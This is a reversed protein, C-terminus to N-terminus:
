ERILADFYFTGDDRKVALAFYDCDNEGTTCTFYIRYTNETELVKTVIIDAGGSVPGAIPIYVQADDLYRFLSTTGHAIKVEGGFCEYMVAEFDSAPIAAIVDLDGYLENVRDILKANGAYAAFSKGWMYNLTSNSYLEHARRTGDFEPLEISDIVFVRIKDAIDCFVESGEDVSGITEELSYNASEASECSALVFVLSAAILALFASFIRKM